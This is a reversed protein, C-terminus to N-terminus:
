CFGNKMHKGHLDVNGDHSGVLPYWCRDFIRTQLQHMGQSQRCEVPVIIELKFVHQSFVQWSCLEHSIKFAPQKVHHVKLVFSISVLMGFWLQSVLRKLSVRYWSCIIGFHHLQISQNPTLIITNYRVVLILFMMIFNSIFM